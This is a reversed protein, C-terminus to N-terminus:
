DADPVEEDSLLGFPPDVVVRGGAIDVTPVLASVLPIRARNGNPEEVVLLDQAPPHEVDVVEGIAEGSPREARLGVLQHVYWADQEESAEAEVVLLTGNLAEASPRDPAEAFILFWRGGQTRAAAVTLPGVDPPDTTLENGVAFREAPADTRVELTVEGRLGHARGIRAVTLLM